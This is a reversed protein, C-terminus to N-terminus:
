LLLSYGECEICINRIHRLCNEIRRYCNGFQLHYGAECANCELDNSYDLCNSILRNVDIAVFSRLQITKTLINISIICLMLGEGSGYYIIRFNADLSEYELSVSKIYVPSRTIFHKYDGNLM